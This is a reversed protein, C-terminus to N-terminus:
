IMTLSIEPVKSVQKYSYSGGRCRPDPAHRATYPGPRTPFPARYIHGCSLLSSRLRLPFRLEFYSLTCSEWDHIFHNMYQWTWRTGRLQVQTSLIGLGSTSMWWPMQVVLFQSNVTVQDRSRPFISCCPPQPWGRYTFQTFTRQHDANLIPSKRWRRGQIDLVYSGRGRLLEHRSVKGHHESPERHCSCKSSPWWPVDLAPSGRGNNISRAPCLLQGGETLMQNKAIMKSVRLSWSLSSGNMRGDFLRVPQVCTGLRSRACDLIRSM